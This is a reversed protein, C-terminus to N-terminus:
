NSGTLSSRPGELEVKLAIFRLLDKLAIIGVLRGEDVVLLRSLGSRSMLGLADMADSDPAVTNAGTCPVTIAGVTHQPWEEPSLRQVEETSVCGILREGDVVPFMKFHYRYIFDEVLQAVSLTRPVAILDTVMFRRVPEGELGRRLLLHRYSMSAANRLFMGILCLWMGGVFDRRVIIDLIGAAILLIGFGNGITSTVRTAWRLDRRWRWLASRLVRGGDLPFAPIMNFFVLARNIVGLYTFVEALTVTQPRLTRGLGLFAYALILSVLPGAIAVLFEVKPSPPESDLEAVGGFIFLTIGRISLKYRRATLAHGLEHLVVSLFLGLAGIAGMSWYGGATLGPLVSPFYGDALSWSILIVVVFWSPDIRIAIGFLKAIEFRKGFM